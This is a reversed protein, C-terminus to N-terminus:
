KVADSKYATQIWSQSDGGAMDRIEHHADQM